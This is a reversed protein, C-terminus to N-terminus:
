AAGGDVLRQPGELLEQIKYKRCQWIEWGAFGFSGESERVFSVGRENVQTIIVPNKPTEEGYARFQVRDGVRPDTYIDRSM